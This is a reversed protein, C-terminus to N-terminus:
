EAQGTHGTSWTESEADRFCIVYSRQSPLCKSKNFLKYTPILRKNRLMQYDWHKDGQMQFHGALLRKDDREIVRCTEQLAQKQADDCPM